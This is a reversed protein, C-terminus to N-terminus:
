QPICVASAMPVVAHALVRSGSRQADADAASNSESQRRRNDDSIAQRAKECIEADAYPRRYDNGGKQPWSVVLEFAAPPSAARDAKEVMVRTIRDRDLYVQTSLESVQRELKDIKAASERQPGDCGALIVLTMLVTARRM